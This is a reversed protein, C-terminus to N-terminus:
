GNIFKVDIVGSMVTVYYHARHRRLDGADSLQATWAHAFNQQSRIALLLTVALRLKWRIQIAPLLDNTFRAGPGLTNFSHTICIHLLNFLGSVGFNTGIPAEM